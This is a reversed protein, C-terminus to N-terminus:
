KDQSQWGHSKCTGTYDHLTTSPAFGTGVNLRPLYLPQAYIGAQVMQTKFSTGFTNLNGPNFTIESNNVSTREPDISQTLIQM